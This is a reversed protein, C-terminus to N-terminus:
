INGMYSCGRASPELVMEHREGLGPSMLWETTDQAVLEWVMPEILRLERTLSEGKLVERDAPPFFYNRVFTRAASPDSTPRFPLLIFPLDLALLM